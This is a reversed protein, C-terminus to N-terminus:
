PPLAAAAAERRAAERPARVAQAADYRSWGRGALWVEAWAHAHSQKVLVYNSSGMLRGGHYGSVLRAPLGAARALVVFAGAFQDSGGARREFVFRDYAGPGRAGAERPEFRFGGESFLALAAAARAAPEAHRAALERGLAQLRPAAQPPLALLAAQEGPALGAADVSADLWAEAAYHTEDNVPTMSLLQGDRTLYSEAPLRGPHDLAYLWPGGHGAVRLTYGLAQGRPRLQARWDASRRYGEAMRARRSAWSPPPTWRQGDYRTFVPGRWYLAAAPPVWADFRAVLATGSDLGDGALAGPELSDRAGLGPGSRPAQVAIPLGLALGFDWLPGPVRPTLVFLLAAPPLALTLLGAARRAPRDAGQLAILAAALAFAYGVLLALSLLAVQQLAGLAALVGAALLLVVRDRRHGRADAELWKLALVLAFFALVAAASGWRPAFGLAWAGLVAAALPLLVRTGIAWGRRVALAKFALLAALLATTWAPVVLAAPAIGLALALGM